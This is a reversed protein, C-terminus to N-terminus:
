RLYETLSLRSLRATLTYHTELQLQVSQLQTATEFPDAAVLENRAISFSSTQASIQVTSQEIQQEAYGISAQLGILESAQTLLDVGAQEQLSQRVEKELNLAIDGALAGKALAKLTDRIAQDDARVGIEVTQEAGAPRSIYGITDGQYGNSEFGGGPIDFWADVAADIDSASTLGAVASQLATMMTESDALPNSELDNGGFMARDGSRQNMSQVAANFGNRAVDAANGIQSATSSLNISLLANSATERQSDIGSLATQMMILFQGTETNSQAFQGLMQLQRDLGSLTTQDGGLHSTLDATEGSTLEQVLTNLQTKLSTNHRTTLLHQRLDGVMSIAM